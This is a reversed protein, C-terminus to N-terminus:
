YAHTVLIYWSIYDGISDLALTKSKEVVTEVINAM